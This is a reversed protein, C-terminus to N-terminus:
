VTRERGFRNTRSSLAYQISTGKMSFTVRPCDVLQDVSTWKWGGPLDLSPKWAISLPEKVKRGANRLNATRASTVTEISARFARQERWDATLEGTFAAALIAQKYREVLRPIRTLEENANKSREFLRDLKDVICDQVRLPAIPVRLKFFRGHTLNLGSENGGTKMRDIARQGEESCLYALLYKPRIVSSNARFRYMKGSIMLRPRTRNVLCAIGCRARPGACTILIDGPTVELQPRPALHGPLRKNFSPDFWGDQIATTKLVVWDAASQSPDPACRPSWGQHLVKEDALPSLIDKIPIYNWTGPM